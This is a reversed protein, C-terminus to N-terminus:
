INFNKYLSFDTKIPQFLPELTDTARFGTRTTNIVFNFPQDIPSPSGGTKVERVKRVHFETTKRMNPDPAQVKRHITLFCDARNVFKGGGETDEAYPAVPLGDDGKRRQAETVAHMNLWVAINNATSFTLFESAAEYHYDHVGISNNRMEIKLSNYPDVFVADVEQMRITKELFLIIDSYSYVEKNSIVTFHENVWKFAAKRQDYTMSGIPMDVAFEMLTMKVSWTTNESSYLVWKWDHQVAANVMMYLAM